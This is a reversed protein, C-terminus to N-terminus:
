VEPIHSIKKVRYGDAYAGKWNSCWRRRTGDRNRNYRSLFFRIAQRRDPVITSQLLRGKPNYVGWWSLNLGKIQYIGHITM